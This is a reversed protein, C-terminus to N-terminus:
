IPNVPDKVAFACLVCLYLCDRASLASFASRLSTGPPSVASPPQAVDKRRRREEIMELKKKDSGDERKWRGEKGEASRAEFSSRWWSM